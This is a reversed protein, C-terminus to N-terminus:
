RLGGSVNLQQTLENITDEALQELQESQEKSTEARFQELEQELNRGLEAEARDIQEIYYQSYRSISQDMRYLAKDAANSLEQGSSESLASVYNEVEATGKKMAHISMGNLMEQIGHSSDAYWKSMLSGVNAQGNVIGLVLVSSIGLSVGAIWIRSKRTKM